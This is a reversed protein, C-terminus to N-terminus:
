ITDQQDSRALALFEGREKEFITRASGTDANRAKAVIIEAIKTTPTGDEYAAIGYYEPRYIFMVVDADQEISNHVIIDNAIFNHNKDVTMDYVDHVGIDKISVIRDWYIDSNALEASSMSGLSCSPMIRPLAVMDGIQLDDLRNWGPLKFFPHNASAKVEKGLATELLFLRKRGSCFVSSVYDKEIKLAGQNLSSTFFGDCGVLDSIKERAGTEYNTILTDGAVCGSERLDSLIPRPPSRDEVKRSLQSLAIVVINLEKALSKLSRSIKTIEQQRNEAGRSSDILQLYDVVLIEVGYSSVMRRGISRIQMESLPSQDDIYIPLANIRKWSKAMRDFDLNTFEGSIIRRSDIGCDFSLQRLYIQESQMELSIFGIPKGNNANHRAVQVGMATKGSSPRGAVIIFDGASFGGILHDIDPLGTFGIYPIVGTEKTLRVKKMVPVGVDGLKLIQKASADNQSVGLIDSETQDVAEQIDGQGSKQIRSLSEQLTSVMSNKLFNERLVSQYQEFNVPNYECSMLVDIHKTVDKDFHDQTFLKLLVVDVADGNAHIMKIADFVIKNNQSSFWERSEGFMLDLNNHSSIASALYANEVDTM